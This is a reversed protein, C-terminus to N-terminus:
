QVNKEREKWHYEMAAQWGREFEKKLAAQIQVSIMEALDNRLSHVEKRLDDVNDQYAISM